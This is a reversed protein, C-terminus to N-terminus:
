LAGHEVCFHFLSLNQRGGNLPQHFSVVLVEPGEKVTLFSGVCAAMSIVPFEPSIHKVPFSLPEYELKTSVNGKQTIFVSM